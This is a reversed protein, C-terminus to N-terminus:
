YHQIKAESLLVKKKYTVLEKTYGSKMKTLREVMCQKETNRM